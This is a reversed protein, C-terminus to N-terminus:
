VESFGENLVAAQARTHRIKVWKIFNVGLSNFSWEIQDFTEETDLSVVLVNMSKQKFAQFANLLGQVNTALNWGKIHGAQDKKLM